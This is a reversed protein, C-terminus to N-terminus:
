RSRIECRIWEEDAASLEADGAQTPLPSPEDLGSGDAVLTSVGTGDGSNGPMPSTSAATVGRKWKRVRNWLLLAGALLLVPPLLWVAWNIGRATPKLLIWAGYRAVFYAKVEEPSEGEALRERIVSLMQRAIESSSEAVSQNRCVPCRLQAALQVSLADLEAAAQRNASPSSGGPSSNPPSAAGSSAVALAVLM